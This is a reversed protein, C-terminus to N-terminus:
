GKTGTRREAKMSMRNYTGDIVDIVADRAAPTANNLIAELKNLIDAHEKCLVDPAPKGDIALIAYADKRTRGFAACLTEFVRQKYDGGREFRSITGPDIGSLNALKPITIKPKASNRWMKIIEGPHEVCGFHCLDGRIGVANTISEITQPM